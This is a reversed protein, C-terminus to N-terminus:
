SVVAESPCCTEPHWISEPCSTDCNDKKKKSLTCRRRSMTVPCNKDVWAMLWESSRDITDESACNAEFYANSFYEDMKGEFTDYRPYETVNAIVMTISKDRNALEEQHIVSLILVALLIFQHCCLIRRGRCFFGTRSIQNIVGCCGYVSCCLVFIAVICTWSAVRRAESFDLAVINGSAIFAAVIATTLAVLLFIADGVLVVLKIIANLRSM